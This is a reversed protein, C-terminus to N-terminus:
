VMGLCAMYVVDLVVGLADPAATIAAAGLVFRSQHRCATV